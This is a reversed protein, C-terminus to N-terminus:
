AHEKAIGFLAKTKALWARRDKLGNKGGNIAVTVKVVDDADAHSMCDSHRWIELAIALAHEPAAALYPHGVLDIGLAQGVRAYHERGTIQLLGRGIYRWGDDPAVNGMRGGYVENALARPNGVFPAAETVTPFRNPWVEVLREARYYLSEVIVRLGGTEHLVQALFHALRLPTALIGSALLIDERTFADLYSERANPALQLLQELTLRTV